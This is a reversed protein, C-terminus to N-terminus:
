AEHGGGNIQWRQFRQWQGIEHSSHIINQTAADNLAVARDKVFEM